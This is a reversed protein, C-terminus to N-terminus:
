NSSTQRTSEITVPHVSLYELAKLQGVSAPVIGILFNRDLRLSKLAVLESVSEPIAGTLFNASLDSCPPCSAPSISTLHRRLAIHQESPM